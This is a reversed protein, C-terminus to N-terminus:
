QSSDRGYDLRNDTTLHPFMPVAVPYPVNEEIVFMDIRTLEVDEFIEMNIEVQDSYKTQLSDVYDNMYEDIVRMYDKYFNYPSQQQRLYEQQHYLSLAQDQWMHTYQQVVNVQDYNRKYAVDTLYKDRILDVAALKFQKAFNQDNVNKSRFVLPHRALEDRFREVTWTQGEITLLPWDKIQEFENQLGEADVEPPKQNWLQANISEREQDPSKVYFPKVVDLVKYFTDEDFQVTKGKMVDLVFEAYFKEAERRSLREKVDNTRLKIQEDTIAVSETWGLVKMTIFSNEDARVPGVVQGVKLSDSYLAEIIADNGERQWTVDRTPLEGTGGIIEFAAEFSATPDNLMAQVSDAINKTPVTFYAINYERGVWRYANSIKEPELKVKSIGEERFLWRRMAQEKRGQIYNQFNQNNYLENNTGTELALMKEALLSNLIIKKHIYENGKVYKPRITYEARRIFEDLTIERDGVQALIVLEPQEPTQSCSSIIALTILLLIYKKM